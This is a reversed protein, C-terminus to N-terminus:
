DIESPPPLHVHEIKDKVVTLVDPVFNSITSASIRYQFALSRYSEGTAAIDVDEDMEEDAFLLLKALVNRKRDMDIFVSCKKLIHFQVLLSNLDRTVSRLIVFGLFVCKRQATNLHAEVLWPLLGQRPALFVYSLDKSIILIM